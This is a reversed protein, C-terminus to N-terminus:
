ISTNHKELGCLKGTDYHPFVSNDFRDFYLAQPKVSPSAVVETHPVISLYLAITTTGLDIAVRTLSFFATVEKRVEKPPVIEKVFHM